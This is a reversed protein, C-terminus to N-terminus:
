HRKILLYFCVVGAVIWVWGPIKSFFSGSKPSISPPTVTYSKRNSAPTAKGLSELIQENKTKASVARSITGSGVKGGITPTMQAKGRIQDLIQQNSRQANTQRGISADGTLRFKAQSESLQIIQNDSAVTVGISQYPRGYHKGDYPPEILGTVSIWRGVWAETPPSALVGLGESWITIKVSRQHWIGFNVFIYPRGRGKGRRGIGQKVSTIQGVLEVKDGVHRLVAEYDKGDLVTYAGIYRHPLPAKSSEKAVSAAASPINRGAIFEALTPVSTIPAQCVRALKESSERLAPMGRLIRFIESSAPDAFDNAKFIIAAGGESFRRFLSADQALAELSVDVVLFSFRDMKPGFHRVGREPHQFNKQGVESGRGEPMGTVFMGDYDILKIDGNAVIMNDNQIDGHAIGHNELFAALQVFKQRLISLEAPKTVLTGLESGLTRGDVWDMRVIPFSEGRVRIGKPEFEFDVFYGNRLRRLTSSIAAYRNEAEPVERHFCRVAFKRSGSTVSYTLAFGGSLALPLGLPTEAVRGRQLLPNNFAGAPNQVAENYDIIQPYPM